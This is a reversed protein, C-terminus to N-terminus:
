WGRDKNKNSGLKEAVRVAAFLTRSIAMRPLIPGLLRYVVRLHAVTKLPRQLRVLTVCGDLWEFPLSALLAHCVAVVQGADGDGDGIWIM